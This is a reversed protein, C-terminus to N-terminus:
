KVRSLTVVAEARTIQGKPKFTNDSYGGMYGREIMGEVGSKAWASVNNKDNFKNLKEYNSDALKEYNSIM